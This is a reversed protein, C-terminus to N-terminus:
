WTRSADRVVRWKRTDHDWERIRRDVPDDRLTPEDPEDRTHILEAHLAELMASEFRRDTSVKEEM